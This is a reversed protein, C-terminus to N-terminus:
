DSNDERMASEYPTFAIFGAQILLINGKVFREFLAVGTRIDALRNTPNNHVLHDMAVTEPETRDGSSLENEFFVRPAQFLTLYRPPYGYANEGADQQYEQWLLIKKM